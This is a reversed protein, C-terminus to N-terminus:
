PTPSQNARAADRLGIGNVRACLLGVPLISLTTTLLCVTGCASATELPVGFFAHFATALVAIQTFWGLIPLQLLSAGMSTAMLLMLTPSAQFAHASFLYCLAIGLWMVLSVALAALFQPFSAITQFGERFDLLRAAVTDALKPSLPRVLSAALHALRDGAFRISAAFVAIFLTAALSLIGAKTFAEHHPLDRPAFALTVSFLVAAAALDFAREISYVALQTVVPTDLRRAVLYPRALDAVRGFLAVATFGIAQSPLLQLTSSRRVPALLIAWRTGRLTLSVAICALALMIDLPSLGHLQQAFTHPNFAIRHRLAWLLIVLLVLVAVPWLKRLASPEDAALQAAPANTTTPANAVAANAPQTRHPGNIADHPVTPM